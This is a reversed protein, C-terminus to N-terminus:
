RWSLLASSCKTWQRLDTSVKPHNLKKDILIFHAMSALTEQVSVSCVSLSSSAELCQLRRLYYLKTWHFPDTQYPCVMLSIDVLLCRNLLSLWCFSFVSFAKACQIFEACNCWLINEPLGSSTLLFELLKFLPLGCYLSNANVSIVFM